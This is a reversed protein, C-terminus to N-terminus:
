YAWGKDIGPPLGTKLNPTDWGAPPETAAGSPPEAVAKVYCRCLWGNPPYHTKYFPHDHRLTLRQDGWQKHLPRPHLVSDNHIYQWYPYAELFAPDTLQAYRGAAQSTLLNTEFIIRTRWAVGKKSGEGTWGTWGRRAVIENFDKRFEKLSGGRSIGKDVADRLDQLLDAKTAGAVVFARDHAEHVLDNWRMTPVNLKGRFFEIQEAFQLNLASGLRPTDPM